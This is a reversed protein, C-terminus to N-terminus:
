LHERAHPEGHWGTHTDIVDDHGQLAVGSVANVDAARDVPAPKPAGGSGTVRPPAMVAPAAFRANIETGPSCAAVSAISAIAAPRLTIIKLSLTASSSSTARLSAAPARPTRTIPGSQPVATTLPTARPNALTTCAPDTPITAAEPVPACCSM